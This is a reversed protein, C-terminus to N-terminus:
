RHIHQQHFIVGDSGCYGETGNESNCCLLHKNGAMKDSRRM